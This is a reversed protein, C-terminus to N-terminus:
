PFLTHSKQHSVKKMTRALTPNGDALQWVTGTLLCFGLVLGLFIAVFCLNTRLSCILYIFCLLGMFLTFFGLIMYKNTFIYGNSDNPRLLPYPGYANYFGPNEPNTPDYASAANYFPTLTTAYSLWFAAVIRDPHIECSSPCSQRVSPHLFSLSLPIGWFLSFCLRLLWFWDESFTNLAM